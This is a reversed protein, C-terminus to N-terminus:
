QTYEFVKFVKQVGSVSAATESVTVAEQENLLGMLYVIQNEVIVKVRESEIDDLRMMQLKLKSALWSDYARSAMTANSKVLLQNHVERVKNVQKARDGALKKLDKSPVEGTLLVVGNFCYVNVHSEDFQANALVIAKFVNGELKEDEIYTSFTREVPEAAAKEATPNAKSARQKSQQEQGAGQFTVCGAIASAVFLHALAIRLKTM